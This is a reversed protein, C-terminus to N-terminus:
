RGNQENGGKHQVYMRRVHMNAYERKSLDRPHSTNYARRGQDLWRQFQMEGVEDRIETLPKM